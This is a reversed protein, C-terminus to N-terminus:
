HISSIMWLMFALLAIPIVIAVIGLHIGRRARAGYKLGMRTNGEMIRLAKKGNQIALVGFVIALPFCLLLCVCAGIGCDMSREAYKNAMFDKESRNSAGESHNSSYEPEVKKGSDGEGDGTSEFTEKAGGAYHVSAVKWKGIIRLPGDQYDCMKYKVQTPSIEQIAALIKEGSRMFLTDCPVDSKEKLTLVPVGKEASAVANPDAQSGPALEKGAPMGAPTEQVVAHKEDPKAQEHSQKRDVYFGNSYHRREVSCSYFSVTAILFLSLYKM